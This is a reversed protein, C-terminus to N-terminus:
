HAVLIRKSMSKGAETVVAGLVNRQGRFRRRWKAMGASPHIGKESHSDELTVIQQGLMNPIEPRAIGAEETSYVIKSLDTLPNGIIQFNLRM